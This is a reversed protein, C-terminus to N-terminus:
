EGDGGPAAEAEERTLFYKKGIQNLMGLSFVTEMVLAVGEHCYKSSDWGDCYTNCKDLARAPCLGKSLKYVTDGVKCPLVILRGEESARVYEDTANLYGTIEEPALGTDEYAALRDIIEDYRKCDYCDPVLDNDCPCYAARNNDRTTLRNM